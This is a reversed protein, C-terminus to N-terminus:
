INSLLFVNSGTMTHCSVICLLWLIFYVLSFGTIIKTLSVDITSERWEKQMRNLNIEWKLETLVTNAMTLNPDTIHLQLPTLVISSSPSSIIIASCSM